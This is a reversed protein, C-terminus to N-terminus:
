TLTSNNNLTRIRNQSDQVLADNRSLLQNLLRNSEELSAARQARNRLRRLEDTDVSTYTRKVGSM